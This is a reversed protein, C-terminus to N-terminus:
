LIFGDMNQIFEEEDIQNDQQEPIDPQLHALEQAEFQEWLKVEMNFHLMEFRLEDVEIFSVDWNDLKGIFSLSFNYFLQKTSDM